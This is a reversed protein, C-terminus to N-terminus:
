RQLLALLDAIQLPKELIPVGLDHRIARADGTMVAVNMGRERLEAILPACTISRTGIRLQYDCVVLDLEHEAVHALVEEPTGVTVLAVDERRRSVRELVRRIMPDDDLVLIRAPGVLVM